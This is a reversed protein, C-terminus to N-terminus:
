IWAKTLQLRSGALRIEYAAISAFCTYGRASLAYAASSTSVFAPPLLLARQNSVLLLSLLLLALLM